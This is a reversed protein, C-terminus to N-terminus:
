VKFILKKRDFLVLLIGWIILYVFAGALSARYPDTFFVQIAHTNLWSILGKEDIKIM